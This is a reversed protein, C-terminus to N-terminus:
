GKLSRFCVPLVHASRLFDSSLSPWPLFFSNPFFCFLMQILMWVSPQMTRIKLVAFRYYIQMFCSLMADTSTECSATQMFSVNVKMNVENFDRSIVMHLYSFTCFIGLCHIEVPPNHGVPVIFFQLFFYM